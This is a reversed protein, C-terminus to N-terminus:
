KEEEFWKLPKGEKDKPAIYIEVDYGFLRWACTPMTTKLLEHGGTDNPIRITVIAKGDPIGAQNASIKFVRGRMLLAKATTVKTM